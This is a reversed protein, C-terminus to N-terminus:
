AVVANGFSTDLFSVTGSPASTGGQAGVASTLSYNGPSGSWAIAAATPTKGSVMLASANSASGADANTGAFVAKYSHNGVGPRFKMTATGASTLQSTGLLNIDTCYKAAANCFNVQGVTIATAGAKVSATLTVVTGSTVSTVPGSASTVALSTTTSAKTQANGLSLIGFLVIALMACLAAFRSRQQSHSKFRHVSSIFNLLNASKLGRSM